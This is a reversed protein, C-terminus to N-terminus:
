TAGMCPSCTVWRITADGEGWVLFHGDIAVVRCPKRRKDLIYWVRNSADQIVRDIYMEHSKYTRCPTLSLWKKKVDAYRSHNLADLRTPENEDLTQVLGRPPASIMLGNDGERENKRHSLHSRM